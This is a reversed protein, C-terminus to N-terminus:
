TTSPKQTRAVFEGDFRAAMGNGAWIEVTVALRGIGRRTLIKAFAAAAEAHCPIARAIFDSEVPKLYETAGRQIVIEVPGLDHLDTLRLVECWGALTALAAISGGFGTGKDNRNPALPAFLQLHGDADLQAQVAMPAALPIGSSILSQWTAANRM